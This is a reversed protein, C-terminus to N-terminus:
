MCILEVMTLSEYDFFVQFIEKMMQLSSPYVNSGLSSEKMHKSDSLLPRGWIKGYLPILM